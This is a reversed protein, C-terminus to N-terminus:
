ILSFTLNPSVSAKKTLFVFIPGGTITVWLGQLFWSMFFRLPEKKIKTFRSDEGVVIVRYFLFGGLRGTWLLIM